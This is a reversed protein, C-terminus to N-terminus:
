LETQVIGACDAALISQSYQHAYPISVSYSSGCVQHARTFLKCAFLLHKYRREIVFEYTLSM